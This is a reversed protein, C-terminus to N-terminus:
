YCGRTCVSEHDPNRCTRLLLLLVEVQATFQAVPTSTDEAQM